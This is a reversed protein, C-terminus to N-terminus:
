SKACVGHQEDHDDQELVNLILQGIQFAYFSM